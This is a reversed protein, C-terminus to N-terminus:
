IHSSYGWISVELGPFLNPYEEPQALADAAKPNVRALDAKWAQVPVAMRSPAYTRAFLAAEPLRGAEGLLSVCRDVQAYLPPLPAPCPPIYRSPYNSAATLAAAETGSHCGVAVDSWPAAAHQSRGRGGWGICQCPPMHNM